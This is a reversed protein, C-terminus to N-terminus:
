GVWPRSSRNPSACAPARVVPLALDSNLQRDTLGNADSCWQYVYVGSLRRCVKGVLNEGSGAATVFSSVLAPLFHGAVFPPHLGDFGKSHLVDLVLYNATDFEFVEPPGHM